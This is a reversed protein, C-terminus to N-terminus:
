NHKDLPRKSQATVGFHLCALSIVLVALLISNLKWGVTDFLEGINVLAWGSIQTAVNLIGAVAAEDAPYSIATGYEFGVSIFGTLFIGLLATMSYVALKTLAPTIIPFRVVVLFLLQSLTAGALLVISTSHFATPHHDLWHGSVISGVLGVMVFLVGLCGAETESWEVHNADPMVFQSLFTALAYFVGTSLGYGICLFWGSPSSLFHVISEVYELTHYPDDMMSETEETTESNGNIPPLPYILKSQGNLNNNADPGTSHMRPSDDGLPQQGNEIANPSTTLQSMNTQIMDRLSMHRSMNETSLERRLKHWEAIAAAESPPSPPFDEAWALVMILAVFSGVMQCGIYWELAEVNLGPTTEDSDDAATTTFSVFVTVGLGCAAGVQSAIVGWSTASSREEAGFWMGALLPPISLLFAQGVSAFLTGVYVWAFSKLGFYRTAGGIFTLIAGWTVGFRLHYCHILYLVPGSGGIVGYMFVSSLSDVQALSAQESWYDSAMISALPSWTIWMWNNILTAASFAVLVLYRRKYLIYEPQEKNNTSLFDNSLRKMLRITKRDDEFYAYGDDDEETEDSVQQQPHQVTAEYNGSTSSMSSILPTSASRQLQQMSRCGCDDLKSDNGM